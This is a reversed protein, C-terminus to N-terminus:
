MDAWTRWPTHIDFFHAFRLFPLQGPLFVVFCNFRFNKASVASIISAAIIEKAQAPLLFKVWGAPLYINYMYTYLVYTYRSFFRFQTYNSEGIGATDIPCSYLCTITRELLFPSQIVGALRGIPRESLASINRVVLNAYFGHQCWVTCYSSSGNKPIKQTM